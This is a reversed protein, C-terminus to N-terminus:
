HVVFEVGIGLIAFADRDVRAAAAGSEDHARILDFAAALIEYMPAFAIRAIPPVSPRLIVDRGSMITAM